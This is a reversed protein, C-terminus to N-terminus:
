IRRGRLSVPKDLVESMVVARRLESASPKRLSAASLAAEEALKQQRNQEHAAHETITEGEAEHDPMSGGICGHADTKSEGSAPAGLTKIKSLHQKKAAEAEISTKAKAPEPMKRVAAEIAAPIKVAIPKDPNPLSEDNLLEAFASVAAEVNRRSASKEAESIPKSAPEPAKAPSAAAKKKKSSKSLLGFAAIVIVILVEFLDEM